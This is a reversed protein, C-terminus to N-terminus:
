PAIDSASGLEQGRVGSVTREGNIRAALPDAM